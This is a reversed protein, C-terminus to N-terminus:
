PKLILGQGTPLSFISVGKEQAFADMELKQAKHADWGYDDLVIVAGSVLKDWFFEMAQREPYAANMDISLYAVKDGTFNTL